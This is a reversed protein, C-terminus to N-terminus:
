LKDAEQAALIWSPKVVKEGNITALAEPNETKYWALTDTIVSKVKGIYEKGKSANMLKRKFEAGKYEGVFMNIIPRCMITNSCKGYKAIETDMIEQAYDAYELIM